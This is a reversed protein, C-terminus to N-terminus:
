KKKPAPAGGSKEKEKILKVRDTAQRALPGNPELKVYTEYEAIAEQPKTGLRTALWYHPLAFKPDLAIAAKFDAVSGDNDKLALKCLGRNTRFEAHDKLAIAKDLTPVCDEPARAVLLEYGISGLLAADKAALPRAQRLKGAADEPKKWVNLWHAYVYLPMADNPAAKTAEEFARLSAGMDNKNALAVALNLQLSANQPHKTLAQRTTLLAEDFRQADIYLVGLNVGAAEQDPKLKLAEKYEKEAMAKDTKDVAMALCAHADADKSNKAVAAECSTKATAMDGSEIAKQGKAVDDNPGASAPPDKPMDNSASPTPGGMSPPLKPPPTTNQAEPTSGGCAATAVIAGFALGVVLNKMELRWEFAM